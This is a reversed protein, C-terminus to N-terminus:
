GRGSPLFGGAHGRSSMPRNLNLSRGASQGSEFANANVRGRGWSKKSLRPYRRTVFDDLQNREVKLLARLDKSNVDLAAQPSSEAGDHLRSLKEDFGSLIGLQYSQRHSGPCRTLQKHSAWLSACQHFLFHYVFEAMLINERRGLIEAAKHKECTRADFLHSHIVRVKFHDNLLSLIKAEVPSTKKRKQSLFMSDMVTQDFAERLKTLNHRDYLERVRRMALLAEHENTSRALSLLKEARELLREDEKSIVRDRMTPIIEPLEARSKTAWHAVGLLRCAEKFSSGHDTEDHINMREHVFQHAMEHKLIELVVDWSHDEILKRNITITRFFPDWKGWFSSITAIQIVVPKLSTKHYWNIEQYERYTQTIWISDLELQIPVSTELAISM